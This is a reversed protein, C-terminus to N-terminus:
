KLVTLEECLLKPVWFLLREQGLQARECTQGVCTPARRNESGTRATSRETRRGEVRRLKQWGNALDQDTSNSVENAFDQDSSM